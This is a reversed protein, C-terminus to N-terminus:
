QIISESRPAGGRRGARDIAWAFVSVGAGTWWTMALLLAVHCDGPVHNHQRVNEYLAVCRILEDFQFKAALRRQCVRAQQTKCSPLRTFGGSWDSTGARRISNTWYPPRCQGRRGDRVIAWAFVSAGAASWWTMALGYATAIEQYATGGDAM